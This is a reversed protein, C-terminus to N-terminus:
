HAPQRLRRAASRAAHYGCMGHVGGGPPTSASCLFISPDPTSYPNFPWAPRNFLQGLDMRGGGIDGGVDNPNYAELEPPGTSTTALIRARLGPAFRELQDLIPETLDASSGHPVHSYAWLTHRGAPARLPDFLSPQAVILFPRQPIRGAHADAEARAIEEFTGGVHITGAQLLEPARWPPPGDLALDLKFIGPGHQFRELARRYRGGLRDDAIELLRRPAVDFLAVRHPPLDEMREVRRGTRMWGGLRELEATMADPIRSAGGAPFPWGDAHASALMVLAAAGSVPETLRLISHAAVGALLARAADGRFRRALSSASQIANLGFLALRLTRPPWLPVHLPALVDDLLSPWRPVLGGVLRAYAPGDEGLGRITREVDRGVVIASGDDLPHALALPPEVWDIAQALGSERFFPAIRGFPYIASCVDHVFGPLTVEASRAGGGPTEAAEIVGVSHGARALMIAAALGNPGAGIVVADVRETGRHPGATM